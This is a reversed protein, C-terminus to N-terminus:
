AANGYAIPAMNSINSTDTVAGMATKLLSCLQDWEPKTMDKAVTFTVDFKQGKCMANITIETM